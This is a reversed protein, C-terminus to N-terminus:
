KKQFIPTLGSYGIFSHTKESLTFNVQHAFTYVTSNTGYKPDVLIYYLKKQGIADASIKSNEPRKKNIEDFDSETLIKAIELQESFYNIFQGDESM